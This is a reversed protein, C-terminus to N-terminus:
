QLGLALLVLLLSSPAMRALRVFVFKSTPPGFVGVTPAGILPKKCTEIDVDPRLYSTVADAPDQAHVHEKPVQVEDNRRLSLQRLNGGSDLREM